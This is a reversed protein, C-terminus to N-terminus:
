LAFSSVILIFLCGVSLAFINAFLRDSLLNIGLIFLSSMCSIYFFFHDSSRFLCKGLSSMCFTLLYMVLHESVSIMLFICILVVILNWRM